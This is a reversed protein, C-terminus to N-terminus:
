ISSIGENPSGESNRPNDNQYQSTKNYSSFSSLLLLLSFYSSVFHLHLGYKGCRINEMERWYRKLNIKKYVINEKM